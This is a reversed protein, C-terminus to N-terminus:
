KERRGQCSLFGLLWRWGGGFRLLGTFRGFTKFVDADLFKGLKGFVLFVDHQVDTRWALKLSSV